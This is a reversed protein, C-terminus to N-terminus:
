DDDFILKYIIQFKNNKYDYDDNEIGRNQFTSSPVM